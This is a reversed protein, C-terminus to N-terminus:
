CFIALSTNFFISGISCGALLKSYYLCPFDVCSVFFMDEIAQLNLKDHEIYLYCITINQNLDTFRLCGLGRNLDYKKQLCFYIVLM